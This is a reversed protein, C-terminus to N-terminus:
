KDEHIVFARVFYLLWNSLIHLGKSIKNDVYFEFNNNSLLIVVVFYLVHYFICFGFEYFHNDNSYYFCLGFM